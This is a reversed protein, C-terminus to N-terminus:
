KGEFQPARKELFARIGENKDETDCLQSFVENELDLGEQLPMQLGLTVAKKAARVALPGKRSITEGIDMAYKKLDEYTVVRQVLGIQLATQAPIKEGSFLLFNAWGSGVLRPLRQTGGAGPIVGLSVEPVGFVAHEAAIRIDCSLALELGGGLCFGNIAAIVPKECGAITDYIKRSAQVRKLGGTQDLDLLEPINAGAVFAKKGAGMIVIAWVGDDDCLKNFQSKLDAKFGEDMANVPPNDLILMGTKGEIEINAKKDSM